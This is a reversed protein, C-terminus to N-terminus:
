TCRQARVVVVVVMLWTVTVTMIVTMPVGMAPMMAVRM